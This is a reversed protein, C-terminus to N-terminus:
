VEKAGSPVPVDPPIVPKEKKEKKEEDRSVDKFAENLFNFKINKVSNITTIAHKYVMQVKGENELFVTFNDFGKITGKLQFGNVLYVVVIQHEKKLQGLYADQLNLQM